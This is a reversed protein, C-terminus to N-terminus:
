PPVHRNGIGTESHGQKKGSRGLLHGIRREFRARSREILRDWSEIIEDRLIAEQASLAARSVQSDKAGERRRIRRRERCDAQRQREDARYGDLDRNRRRTALKRRRKERCRRSCTKQTHVATHSPEFWNRCESCRKRRCRKKGTGM